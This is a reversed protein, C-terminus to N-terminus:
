FNMCSSVAPVFYSRVDLSFPPAGAVADSSAVPVIVNPSVAVIVHGYCCEPKGSNSRPATMRGASKRSQM